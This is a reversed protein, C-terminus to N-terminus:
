NPLIYKFKYETVDELANKQISPSQRETYSNPSDREQPPLFNIFLFYGGITIIPPAYFIISLKDERNM